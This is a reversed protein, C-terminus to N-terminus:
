ALPQAALEKLREGYHQRWIPPRVLHGAAAAIGVVSM